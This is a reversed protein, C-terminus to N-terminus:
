NRVLPPNSQGKYYIRLEKVGLLRALRILEKNCNPCTPRDVFLEVVEPLAGFKLYGRILSEAEAHNIFQADGLNPRKLGASKSLQEFIERRTGLPLAYIAPDLTSNTGYFVEDGIKLRSVTGSEADGRAYKPYNSAERHKDIEAFEKDMQAKSAHEPPEAAFRMDPERARRMKGGEVDLRVTKGSPPDLRIRAVGNQSVAKVTGRGSPTDVRLGPNVLAPEDVVPGSQSKPRVAGATAAPLPDTQSKLHHERLAMREVADDLKLIGVKPFYGSDMRSLRAVVYSTFFHERNRGGANSDLAVFDEHFQEFMQPNTRHFWDLVASEQVWRALKESLGKTPVKTLGAERCAAAIQKQARAIENKKM